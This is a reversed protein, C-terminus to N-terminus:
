YCDRWFCWVPCSCNTSQKIHKNNMRCLLRHWGDVIYDESVRSIEHLLEHITLEEICEELTMESIKMMDPMTALFIEVYGEEGDMEMLTAYQGNPPYDLVNVDVLM